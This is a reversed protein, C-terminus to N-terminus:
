LTCQTHIITHTPSQSHEIEPQVNVEGGHKVVTLCLLGLLEVGEEGMRCMWIVEHPVTIHVKIHCTIRLM